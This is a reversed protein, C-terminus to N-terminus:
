HRSERPVLPTQQRPLLLAAPPNSPFVSAFFYRSIGIFSRLSIFRWSIAETVATKYLV